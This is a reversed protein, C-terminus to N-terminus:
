NHKLARVRKTPMKKGECREKEKKSEKKTDKLVRQKQQLQQLSPALTLQYREVIILPHLKELVQLVIRTPFYVSSPRPVPRINVTLGFFSLILNWIKNIKM